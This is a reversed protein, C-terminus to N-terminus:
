VARQGVRAARIEMVDDLELLRLLRLVIPPCNALTVAGGTLHAHTTAELLVRLGALDVFWVDGLDCTLVRTENQARRIATRARRATLLDLEGVLMLRASGDRNRLRFSSFVAGTRPEQTDERDAFPTSM